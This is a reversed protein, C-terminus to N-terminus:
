LLNSRVSGVRMPLFDWDLNSEGPLADTGSPPVAASVFSPSNWAFTSPFTASFIREALGLSSGSNEAGTVLRGAAAQVLVGGEHSLAEKDPLLLAAVGILWTLGSALPRLLAATIQHRM